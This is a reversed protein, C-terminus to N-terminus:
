TTNVKYQLLKMLVKIKLVNKMLGLPIADKADKIRNLAATSSLGQPISNEIDVILMEIATEAFDLESKFDPNNIDIPLNEM